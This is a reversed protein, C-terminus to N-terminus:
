IDCFAQSWEVEGEKWGGGVEGEGRVGGGGGEGGEGRVGEM